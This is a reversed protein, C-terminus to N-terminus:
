ADIWLAHHEGDMRGRRCRELLLLGGRFLRRGHFGRGTPLLPGGRLFRGTPFLRDGRLLSSRGTTRFALSPRLFLTAELKLRAGTADPKLRVHPPGMIRAILIPM